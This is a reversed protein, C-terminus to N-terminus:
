RGDVYVDVGRRRGRRVGRGLSELMLDGNFTARASAPHPRSRPRLTLSAAGIAHITFGVHDHFAVALASRRDSRPAYLIKGGVPASHRTVCGASDVLVGDLDFLIANCELRTVLTTLKEQPNPM